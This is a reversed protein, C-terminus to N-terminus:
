TDTDKGAVYWPSNTQVTLTSDKGAVWRVRGLTIWTRGLARAVTWELVRQRTKDDPCNDLARSVPRLAKIDPDLPKTM